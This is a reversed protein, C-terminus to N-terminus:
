SVRKTDVGLRSRMAASPTRKVWLKTATHQRALVTVLVTESVVLVADEVARLLGHGLEKTSGAVLGAENAFPVENARRCAEVVPLYQRCLAVVVIGGEDVHVATLDDIAAVDCAENGVFGERPQILM